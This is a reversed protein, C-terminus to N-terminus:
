MPLRASVLVGRGSRCVDTAWERGGHDLRDCEGTRNDWADIDPTIPACGVLLM